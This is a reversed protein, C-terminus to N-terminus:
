FLCFPSIIVVLVCNSSSNDSETLCVSKGTTLRVYTEKKLNNFIFVKNM